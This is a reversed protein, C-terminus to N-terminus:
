RWIRQIIGIIGKEFYIEKLSKKKKLLWIYGRTVMPFSVLFIKKEKQVSFGLSKKYKCLNWRLKNKLTKTQEYTPYYYEIKEIASALDRIYIRLTDFFLNKLNEEKFFVLQEEFADLADLRQLSWKSTM